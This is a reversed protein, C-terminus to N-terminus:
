IIMMLQLAHAHQRHPGRRQHRQESGRLLLMTLKIARQDDENRRPRYCPHLQFIIRKGNLTCRGPGEIKGAAAAVMMMLILLLLLLLLSPYKKNRPKIARGEAKLDSAVDAAPAVTM